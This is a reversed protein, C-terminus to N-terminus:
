PAASPTGSRPTSPNRVHTGIVKKPHAAQISWDTETIKESIRRTGHRRSATPLAQQHSGNVPTGWPEARTRLLAM